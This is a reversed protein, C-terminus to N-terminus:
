RYLGPNKARKEEKETNLRRLTHEINEAAEPVREHPAPDTGPRAATPRAVPAKRLETTM